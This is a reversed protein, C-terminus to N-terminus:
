TSESKARALITALDKTFKSRPMVESCGAAHAQEALETQVHSLFGVLPVGPAISKMRAIADLPQNRSNLDLVVLRPTEKSIESFLADPTTCIRLAIGLHRATEVMKAQFFLDDVMALVNALNAVEREPKDRAGRSCLNLEEVEALAQPIFVM